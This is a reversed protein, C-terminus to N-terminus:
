VAHKGDVTAKELKPTGGRKLERLFRSFDAHAVCIYNDAGGYYVFLRRDKVVAGCTYVIGPKYGNLEYVKTPEIVPYPSASIIKEPHKKDLLAAGIKYKWPENKDLGHYFILWGDKSEIPPPGVSKVTYEWGGIVRGPVYTSSIYEGESFELSDRYTIQITPSLSHLIAYKNKIKQPFIVFNKHVENPPSILTEPKWNWRKRRFDEVSISTFGVRLEGFATYTMYIVDEDDVRVIRPDECGGFGGGSPSWYYRKLFKREYVPTPHKYSISLGDESEIYGFRSIGDTGIARYILHVKDDLVIAGPNFTQVAEWSNHKDPLVLLRKTREM